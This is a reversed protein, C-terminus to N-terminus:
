ATPDATARRLIEEVVATKADAYNQVYKWEQSGLERKTRAYLERDADNTRLWDRFLLMREVEQVEDAEYRAALATCDEPVLLPGTTACGFADLSEGIAGWDLAVVRESVDHEPAMRRAHTSRAM